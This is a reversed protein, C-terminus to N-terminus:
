NRKLNHNKQYKQLLLIHINFMKKQFTPSTRTNMAMTLSKTVDDKTLLAGHKLFSNYKHVNTEYTSLLFEIPSQGKHKVKSLDFGFNSLEELKRISLNNNGHIMMALKGRQRNTKLESPCQGPINYGALQSLKIALNRPLMHLEQNM